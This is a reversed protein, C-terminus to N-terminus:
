GARWDSVRDLDVLLARQGAHSAESGGSGDARGSTTTGGPRQKVPSLLADRWVGVIASVILGVQGRSSRAIVLRASPGEEAPEAVLGLRGALAIVAIVESRYLAAGRLYSPVRPLAAVPLLRVVEVVQDVPVVHLQGGARVALLEGASM